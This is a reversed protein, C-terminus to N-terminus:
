YISSVKYYNEIDLRDHAHGGDPQTHHTPKCFLRSVGWM